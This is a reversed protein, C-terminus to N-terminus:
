AQFWEVTTPHSSFRRKERLNEYRQLSYPLRNPSIKSRATPAASGPLASEGPLTAITVVTTATTQSSSAARPAAPASAAAICGTEIPTWAIRFTSATLRYASSRRWVRPTLGPLSRWSCYSSIPTTIKTGSSPTRCRMCCRGALKTTPPSSIFFRM